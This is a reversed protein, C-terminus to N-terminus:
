DKVANVIIPYFVDTKLAISALIKNLKLKKILSLWPLIKGTNGYASFRGRTMRKLFEKEGLSILRFGSKNVLERILRPTIFQLTDIFAPSKNLLRVYLKAALKNLWPLWFIGYHGEWFSHYNPIVFYIQGGKKLQQYCQKFVQEPNQTHEIVQFSVILDFKNQFNFSEGFLNKVKSTEILNEKLLSQAAAFSWKDPEIGYADIKNKNLFAVLYGAGCGLDLVKANRKNKLLNNIIKYRKISLEKNLQVKTSATLNALTQYSKKISIKLLNISQQSVIVPKFLRKNSKM